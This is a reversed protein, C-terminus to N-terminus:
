SEVDFLNLHSPGGGLWVLLVSKARPAGRPPEAAQLPALPSLFPLTCAAQVFARRSVGQCDGARFSGVSLM